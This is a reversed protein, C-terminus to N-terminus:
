VHARGIQDGDHEAALVAFVITIQDKNRGLGEWLTRLGGAVRGLTTM